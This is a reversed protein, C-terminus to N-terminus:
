QTLSLSMDDWMGSFAYIKLGDYNTTVKKKNLHLRVEIRGNANATQTLFYQCYTNNTQDDPNDMASISVTNTSGMGGIAEFFVDFKDNMKLSNAQFYRMWGSLTYNTGPLLGSVTQAFYAHWQGDDKGRLHGGVGGDVRSAFTTRGAISFDSPLGYASWPGPPTNTDGFIVTWNNTGLPSEFGPNNLLNQAIVPSGILLTLGLLL